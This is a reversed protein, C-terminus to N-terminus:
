LRRVRAVCRCGVSVAHRQGVVGSRLGRGVSRRIAGVLLVAGAAEVAGLEGGRRVPVLQELGVAAGALGGAREDVVRLAPVPL